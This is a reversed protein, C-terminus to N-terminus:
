RDPTPHAPMRYITLVHKGEGLDVVDLDHHLLKGKVLGLLRVVM